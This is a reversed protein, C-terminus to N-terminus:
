SWTRWLILKRSFGLRCIIIFDFNIDTWIQMDYFIAQFRSACTSSLMNVVCSLSLRRCTGFLQYIFLTWHLYLNTLSFDSWQLVCVLLQLVNNSRTAMNGQVSISSRLARRVGGSIEQYVRKMGLKKEKIVNKCSQLSWWLYGQARYWRAWNEGSCGWCAPSPAEFKTCKHRKRRSEVVEWRGWFMGHSCVVGCYTSTCPPQQKGQWCCFLCQSDSNTIRKKQRPSSKAMLLSSHTIWKRIADGATQKNQMIVHDCNNILNTFADSSNNNGHTKDKLLICFEGM